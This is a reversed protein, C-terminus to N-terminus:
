SQTHGRKWSDTQSHCNPCLLLVNERTYGQTPMLRHAELMIPHRMWESLHCGECRNGREEILRLRVAGKAKPFRGAKIEDIAQRYALQHDIQIDNVWHRVTPWPVKLRNAITRYGLGEQRLQRAQQRLEAYKKVGILGCLCRM